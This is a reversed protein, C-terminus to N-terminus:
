QTHSIYSYSVDRAAVSSESSAASLWSINSSGVIVESVKLCQWFSVKQISNLLEKLFALSGREMKVAM